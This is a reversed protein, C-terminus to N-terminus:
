IARRVKPCSLITHRRIAKLTNDMVAGCSCTHYLNKPPKSKTKM